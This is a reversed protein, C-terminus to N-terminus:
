CRVCDPAINGIDRVISDLKAKESQKVEYMVIFKGNESLFADLGSATKSAAYRYVYESNSYRNYVLISGDEEYTFAVTHITVSNFNNVSIVYVGGAHLQQKGEELDATMSYSVDYKDFLRYLEKPRSGFYGVM